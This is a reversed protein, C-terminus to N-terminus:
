RNGLTDEFILSVNLSKLSRKKKLDGQFKRLIVVTFIPLIQEFSPININIEAKFKSTNM